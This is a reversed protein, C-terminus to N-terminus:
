DTGILKVADIEDWGSHARQDLYLVVSDVKEDIGSFEITWTVPCFSDIQPEGSYVIYEEGSVGIVIVETIAGPNYTEYIVVATPYVPTEYHLELWDMGTASSTAWATYYDGCDFTDAPGTAQYAAWDSDTYQSSAVATDAWQEITKGSGSGPPASEVTPLEGEFVVFGYTGTSWTDVRATYLGDVPLTISIWPDVGMTDDEEALLDGDPDLLRIRTDVEGDLGAAVIQVEQDASGEFVWNHADFVSEFTSSYPVNMDILQVLTTDYGDDLDFLPLSPDVEEAMEIPEVDEMGGEGGEHVAGGTPETVTITYDGSLFTDVRITYLGDEPLTYTIIPDTGDTNDEEILLYGLPDILRSRADILNNGEVAIRLVQGATGEFLWNHADFVSEFTATVPTDLYIREVITTDYGDDLDYVPLDEDIGHSPEEEAIEEEIVPEETPSEEVAEVTEEVEEVAEDVAEEVQEAAGSLPGCAFAAVVLAIFVLKLLTSRNALVNKM